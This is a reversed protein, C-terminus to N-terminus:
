EIIQEAYVSWKVKKGQKKNSGLKVEDKIEFVPSNKLILKKTNIQFESVFPFNM